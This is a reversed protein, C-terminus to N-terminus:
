NMMSLGYKLMKIKIKQKAKSNSETYTSFDIASYAEASNADAAARIAHRIAYAAYAMEINDDVEANAGVAEAAYSAQFVDYHNVLNQKLCKEAIKLSNKLIKNKYKHKRLIHKAAFIACSVYKKYEMIHVILWNAFDLNTKNKLAVKILKIPDTEALDRFLTVWEMPASNYYLWGANINM